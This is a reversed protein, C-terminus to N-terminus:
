KPGEPVGAVAEAAGVKTCKALLEAVTRGEEVLVLAVAVALALERGTVLLLATAKVASSCRINFSCLVKRALYPSYVMNSESIRRASV